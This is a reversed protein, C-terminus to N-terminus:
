RDRKDYYTVKTRLGKAARDAVGSDVRRAPYCVRFRAPWLKAFLSCGEASLPQAKARVWAGRMLEELAFPRPVEKGLAQPAAPTDYVRAYAITGMARYDGLGTPQARVVEYGKRKAEHAFM